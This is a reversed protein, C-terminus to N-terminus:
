KTDGSGGSSSTSSSSAASSGSDSSKSEKSGSRAYDTIYFGSGKFQIAPSSILKKLAGGCHPCITYPDDNVKQLAELREQCQECKYEYLPM